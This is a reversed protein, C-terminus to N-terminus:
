YCEYKSHSIQTHIITKNIKRKVIEINMNLTSFYISPQAIQLIPFFSSNIIAFFYITTYWIFWKRTDLIISLINIWLNVESIIAFRQSSVAPDKTAVSVNDLLVHFKLSSEVCFPFWSLKMKIWRKVAKQLVRNDEDYRVSM